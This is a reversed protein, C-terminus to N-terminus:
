IQRGAASEAILKALRRARTEDKKASGVWWSAKKRYWPAQAHFYRWAARNEGLQAEAAADLAADKQEYSYIVSKHSKRAEFARLGAAKMRKGAALAEVRKINVASWIGGPKRRTFRIVYTSEGLSKRGGDIWGVCLAEDVSQPWTVSPEGTGVKHFGLWL